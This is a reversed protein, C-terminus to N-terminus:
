RARQPGGLRSANLNGADGHIFVPPDDEFQYVSGGAFLCGGGGEIFPQRGM